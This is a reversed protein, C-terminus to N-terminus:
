NKHSEYYGAGICYDKDVPIVYSIKPEFHDTEPYFWYYSVWGGGELAKDIITKAANIIHTNNSMNLNTGCLKPDIHAYMEGRYNLAFIYLEKHQFEGKPDNFTAMAKEKGNDKIYQLAKNVFDEAHHRREETIKSRVFNSVESM